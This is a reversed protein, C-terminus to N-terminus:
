DTLATPSLKKSDCVKNSLDQEADNLLPATGGPARNSGNPGMGGVPVLASGLLPLNAPYTTKQM